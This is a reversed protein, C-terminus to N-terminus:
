ILPAEDEVGIHLALLAHLQKRRALGRQAEVPLRQAALHADPTRDFLHAIGLRIGIEGRTRAVAADTCPGRLLRARHLPAELELRRDGHEGGTMCDALNRARRIPGTEADLRFRDLEPMVTREAQM